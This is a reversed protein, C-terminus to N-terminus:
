RGPEIWDSVTRRAGQAFLRALAETVTGTFRPDRPLDDGFVERVAFLEGALSEASGAARDALARLRAAMPDRVDIAAGKEDIGTVYRMWAAVGLALRRIPADAQLRDRVTGLLRQPLKQSGDMAIQWTRHKLAPNRFRTVLASRYAELDAGPPMHLTPTVEEDMLGRILRVFAEDAMADAVTEYGSLYGLYALTSHSGNLLRLKMHEYPEVDSVFEVGAKEWGPRGQPFRDEIVWQTFPETVVPWADAVGLSQAIRERDQDSTAPVIRDVMTSPCSVEEAVFRGLEPDVLEAFRTLVRKVTRGNAPLNDCTLVTFPPVGNMRRRRLAEVIFGPASKPTRLYALDHVIDPHAENLAGTAPDHCYGKETVTLTVIRTQPDTMVELLSEIERPAVIVRRISGIVRLAEGEQSRVSLTYLGDQPQLADYTDPSRLSAAVIGWRPDQALVDDTYVAQHARHFAGVGLHVIGTGIARRDYAPRRVDAPLDPLMDDNLRDSM